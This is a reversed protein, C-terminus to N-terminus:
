LVDWYYVAKAGEPRARRMVMIGRGAGVARGMVFIKKKVLWEGGPYSPRETGCSQCADGIQRM